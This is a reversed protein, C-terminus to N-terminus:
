VYELILSDTHPLEPLLALSIHSGSCANFISSHLQIVIQLTTHLILLSSASFRLINSAILFMCNSLLAVQIPSINLKIQFKHLGSTLQLLRDKAIEILIALIDWQICRSSQFLLPSTHLYRKGIASPKTDWSRNSYNVSFIEKKHM